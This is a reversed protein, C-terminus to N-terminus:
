VGGVAPKEMRSAPHPRDRQRRAAHGPKKPRFVGHATLAATRGQTASENEQPLCWVGHSIARLLRFPRPVQAMTVSSRSHGQVAAGHKAASGNEKPFGWVGHAHADESVVGCGRIESRFVGHATLFRADCGFRTRSGLNAFRFGQGRSRRGAKRRREKKTRFVGHATLFRADCGFRARSGLNAFPFGTRASFAV